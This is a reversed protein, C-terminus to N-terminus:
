NPTEGPQFKQHVQRKWGMVTRRFTEKLPVFEVDGKMNVTRLRGKLVAAGGSLEFRDVVFEASRFPRWLEEFGRKRLDQWSQPPQGPSISLWDPTDFSRNIEDLDAMSKAQRLADLANAYATQIENRVADSSQPANASALAATLIALWFFM